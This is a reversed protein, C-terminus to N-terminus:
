IHLGQPDKYFDYPAPPTQLPADGGYTWYRPNSQLQQQTKTENDLPDSAALGSQVKNISFLSLSSLAMPATGLNPNSPIIQTGTSPVLILNGPIPIPGSVTLAQVGPNVTSPSLLIFFMILGTIIVSFKKM